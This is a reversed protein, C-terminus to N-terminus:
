NFEVKREDIQFVYTYIYTCVQFWLQIQMHNTLTYNHMPTNIFRYRPIESHKLASSSHLNHTLFIYRYSLLNWKQPILTRWLASSLWHYDSFVNRARVEFRFLKIQLNWAQYPLPLSSNYNTRSKDDSKFTPLTKQIKAKTYKKILWDSKVNVINLTPQLALFLAFHFSM